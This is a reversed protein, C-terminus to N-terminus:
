EDRLAATPDLSAARWAPLWSAVFAILFFLVAITAFTAPDTAKVGVLMTTMGRTLAFAAILGAGIGAATLLLAQGVVLRFIRAPQAGLAMRIGIEATRQRVITALVGYLGVAALLAAIVAFVGILLLSFRTSAQAKGVLADVPQMEVILMHPDVSKLAARVDGGYVTADNQTRIVWQNVAGSRRFADAFYVQERGRDALSEDRTHAVVGIVEVWEPEPTRLRILIRKGIASQNPFAKEALLQDIVVLSRGPANDDETFTRGSLLPTHMTEFYGPLVIQYDVAQFKSADSLAEETGWRIPSFGGALPFPSAGGVSQVGPIARLREQIQHMLAARADPTNGVDPYGLIRFTLLGHPAFGPDIRQLDRFSRFMLGSGVLLGFSLAVEVVVVLNRLLGGSTLGENRSSGRLVNMVDPRAARWASALGFVAGALLGAVATFILVASDIRVADLRPLNAPAIVLLERIGLWALGLGGAAGVVALLFAESLLQRALNWWSAGLAARVALERERLASRVLLLNAVNACGILLLFIVAGMLALIAPRVESVLHQQIPELRIAYEAKGWPVPFNKRTEAAVHDAAAQAQELSVGDGLRGVARIAVSNRNANDYDLRNAIWIEPEAEINASPPFYLQFRPALVGVIIFPGGTVLPHGLVSPNGGYRRQFYEYSLITVIPLDPAATGPQVGPPPPPPQLLGDAEAFDRGLAIRAGVMHFFNTTVAAYRVQELTGDNMSLIMRDTLVGSVEQFANKMGDRMDIFNENSFPWDRVNRARLDTAAIVLRSPDKYPLPRLLVANTVSFIATSAGVGLAITLAATLAFIPSKRLTRGAFALERLEM